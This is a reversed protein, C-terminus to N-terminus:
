CCAKRSSHRQCLCYGERQKPRERYMHYSWCRSQLNNSLFNIYTSIKSCHETCLLCQLLALPGRPFDLVTVQPFFSPSLKINSIHTVTKMKYSSLLMPWPHLLLYKNILKHMLSFFLWCLIILSTFLYDVFHSFYKYVICSIFM